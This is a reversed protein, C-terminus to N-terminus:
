DVAKASQQAAFGNILADAMRDRASVLKDLMDQLAPDPTVRGHQMQMLREIVSLVEDGGPMCKRIVANLAARNRVSAPIDHFRKFEKMDIKV